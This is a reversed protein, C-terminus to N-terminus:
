DGAAIRYLVGHDVFSLYQGGPMWQLAPASQFLNDVGVRGIERTGSGDLRSLRYSVAMRGARFLKPFARNLM